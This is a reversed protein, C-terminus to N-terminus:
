ARPAGPHPPAAPPLPPPPVSPVVVGARDFALKLRERIVRTLPITQEPAAKATVRIYLADGTIQEVGAYSPRGFLMEDYRADEDMDEAVMEVIERVRELDEDYGVPVDVIALTWGQSRNAVRLVEGNRVYWVVGTTDRLRTVRLTVEEVTGIVPGLDVMDGVGFQDEIILFIGSLYDKVLTQAGFGLAVGIVGASALLPAIDIGLKPLITLVALGWVAISVISKLLQGIAEARQERREGLLIGSLEATRAARRVQGLREQRASTAMRRVVRNIIRRLVWRVIVAVLLIILIQLPVGTLWQWM